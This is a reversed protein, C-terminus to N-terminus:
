RQEFHGQREVNQDNGLDILVRVLRGGAHYDREVRIDKIREPDVRHPDEALMVFDALKGETISGKLGEEFSAHAGHLTCIRLAEAVTVRQNAGWVRGRYDKRTVMSQLALLPEYPGPIYDSAGAVKIGHDLFSRHAFM